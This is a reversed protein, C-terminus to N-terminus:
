DYVARPAFNGGSLQRKVVVDAPSLHWCSNRALDIGAKWENRVKSHDMVKMSRCGCKFLGGEAVAAKRRRSYEKIPVPVERGDKVLDFGHVLNGAGDILILAADAHFFISRWRPPV